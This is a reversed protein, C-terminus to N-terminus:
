KSQFVKKSTYSLLNLCGKSSNRVIFIKLKFKLKEFHPPFKLAHIRFCIYVFNRVTMWIGIDLNKWYENNAQLNNELEVVAKYLFNEDNAEIVMV